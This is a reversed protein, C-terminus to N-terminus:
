AVSYGKDTDRNLNIEKEYRVFVTTSVQVANGTTKDLVTFELETDLSLVRVNIGGKPAM